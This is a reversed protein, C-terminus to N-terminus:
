RKGFESHPKWHVVGRRNVERIVRDAVRAVQALGSLDWDDRIEDSPRHYNNARYNKRVDTGWSKPKGVYDVGSDLWMAPIGMCAFPYQDSRFFYGQEPVPDPTLRLGMPPLVDEVIAELESHEAGIAMVDHTAGWVNSLEFNIVSLIRQTLDPHKSLFKSGLLGVEEADVAAFLLTPLGARSGRGYAQALSLLLALASGNDVAGNYIGDGDVVRGIGLHDYHATLMVVGHSDSSGAGLMGMVNTGEVARALRRSEIAVRVPLSVPKFERSEARKRLEDLDFGALKMLERGRSQTLWGEFALITQEDALRFTETAWSNRVVEWGYGADDDSHILLMGSAGLQAALEFKTTWRGHATLAKGRFLSPDTRGPENAFGILFKGRVDVGKYDDWTEEPAQIGYGVFLPEQKSSDLREQKGANVVVFDEGSVLVRPARGSFTVSANPDPAFATMAFKQTFKGEHVPALDAARFVSEVYAAALRGGRAGTGRGELLDDALFNLHAALVDQSPAAFAVEDM